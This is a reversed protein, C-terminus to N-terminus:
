VGRSGVGGMRRTSKFVWGARSEQEKGRGKEYGRKQNMNFKKIFLIIILTKCMITM